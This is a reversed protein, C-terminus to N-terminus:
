FRSIMLTKKLILEMLFEQFQNESELFQRMIKRIIQDMQLLEMTFEIWLMIIAYLILVIVAMIGASSAVVIKSFDELVTRTSRVGYLGSVAYAGIFFLSTILVIIAYEEFPLNLDFQVPRFADLIRTRMIYTGLGAALLMLFDVPVLLVSFILEGKKM